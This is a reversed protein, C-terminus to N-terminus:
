NFLVFDPETVVRLNLLPNYVMRNPIENDRVSLQTIYQNRVSFICLFNCVFYPSEPPVPLLTSEALGEVVLNNTTLGREVIM